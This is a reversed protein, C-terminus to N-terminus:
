WKHFPLIIQFSNEKKFLFWLLIYDNTIYKKEKSFKEWFQKEKKFMYDKERQEFFIFYFDTLEKENNIKIRKKKLYKLFMIYINVNNIDFFVGKTRYILPFIKRLNLNSFERYFALM